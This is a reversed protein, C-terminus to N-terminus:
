TLALDTSAVWRLLCLKWKRLRVSELAWCFLHCFTDRRINRLECRCTGRSLAHLCFMQPSPESRLQRLWPVVLGFRWEVRAAFIWFSASKKLPNEFLVPRNKVKWFGYTESEGGCPAHRASPSEDALCLCRRVPVFVRMQTRIQTRIQIRTKLPSQATQNNTVVFAPISSGGHVSVLLPSCKRHPCPLM